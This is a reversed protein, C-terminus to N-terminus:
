TFVPFRIRGLLAFSIVSVLTGDQMMDGANFQSGLGKRLYMNVVRQVMHLNSTVLKNKAELGEDITQMIAEMNIKGAAACYEANTPQRNLKEIMNHHLNQLRIAEQTKSGLERKEAHTICNEKHNEDMFQILSHPVSASAGYM